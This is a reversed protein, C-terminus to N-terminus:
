YMDTLQNRKYLITSYQSASNELNLVHRASSDTTVDSHTMAKTANKVFLKIWKLQATCYVGQHQYTSDRKRFSIGHTRHLCRLLQNYQRVLSVFNHCFSLLQKLKKQSLSKFLVNCSM